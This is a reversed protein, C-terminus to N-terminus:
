FDMTTNGGEFGVILTRDSISNEESTRNEFASTLILTSTGTATIFILTIGVFLSLLILKKMIM